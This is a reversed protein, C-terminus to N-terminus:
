SSTSASSRKTSRLKSSYTNKRLKEFYKEMVKDGFVDQHELICKKIFKASVGFIKQLQTMSVDNSNTLYYTLSNRALRFREASKGFNNKTVVAKTRKIAQKGSADKTM